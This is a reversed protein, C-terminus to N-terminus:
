GISSRYSYDTVVDGGDDGTPGSLCTAVPLSVLWSWEPVGNNPEGSDTMEISAIDDAMVVQANVGSPEDSSGTVGGSAIDDVAVM